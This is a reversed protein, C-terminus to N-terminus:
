LIDLLKKLEQAEIGSEYVYCFDEPYAYRQKEKRFVALTQPVDGNCEYWIDHLRKMIYCYDAVQELNRQRVLEILERDREAYHQCSYALLPQLWYNLKLGVFLQNFKALIQPKTLAEQYSYQFRLVWLMRELVIPNLNMRSLIDKLTSIKSETYERAHPETILYNKSVWLLKALVAQEDEKTLLGERRKLLKAMVAKLEKYSIPKVLFNDAGNAFGNARDEPSTLASVMIIPIDKTSEHNRLHAAVEFGSMGPLMVDLLIIDPREVEVMDLAQIGQYACCSEYGWAETFDKLIEVNKQNDDIILVKSM